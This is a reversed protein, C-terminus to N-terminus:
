MVVKDINISLVTDLWKFFCDLDDSFGRYSSSATQAVLCCIHIVCWMFDNFRDNYM